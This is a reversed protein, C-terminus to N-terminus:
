EGSWDGGGIQGRLAEFAQLAAGATEASAQRSGYPTLIDFGSREGGSGGGGGGGSGGGSGGSGVVFGGGGPLSENKVVQINKACAGRCRCCCFVFL